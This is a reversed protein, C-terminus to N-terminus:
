RGVHPELAPYARELFAALRADGEAPTEGPALPTILRVLAGDSRRMTLSDWLNYFKLTFDNTLKRGRMELWYYLLMQQQGKVIIGRNLEFARGDATRVPAAAPGFSVYEWGGGPLCDKPSHIAADRIQEDYYAVWLNVFGQGREPEFDALLYDDSGVAQLTEGEIPIPRGHWATGGAAGLTLPFTVLGPRAPIIQPRDKAAAAAPVALVLLTVAALWPRPLGSPPAPTRPAIHAGAMRDFDLLDAPGARNGALRALGWMLAFLALLAALFIVWGEFLHMFGEALETSGYEVLLGTMAIRLSNMLITIPVTAFLVV